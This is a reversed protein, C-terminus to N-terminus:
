AGWRLRWIAAAALLAILVLTGITGTAPIPNGLLAAEVVIDASAPEGSPIGGLSILSTTNTYTGAPADSPVQVDVTFTCSGGPPLNGGTLTLFSTGTLASGTGCVEAMPTSVAVLGPVVADLDDTFAIDVIGASADLNEITFQLTGTQGAPIPAGFVKTFSFLSVSLDDTAPDGSVPFGSMTGTVTSTTNTYSGAPAAAPVQVTVSFTCTAGAALNAGTLTLVGAGSIQSGAGCVDNAPLGVAALGALAAGLDDTFTIGTVGSTTSLNAVTFELTASDGPAVPDDTFQKSFALPMSDVVLVDVAPDSVGFSSSLASTTNIYSGDAAGAPVLVPVDIICSTGSLVSGGVYILNTTGSLAGGCTDASAPGTAALGSLTASLNDTFLTITADLTPHANDLTFRLTVTQGPLAPDDIFEKNLTLGSIMLNDSAGNETTTVGLVTATVNSTTNPYSGPAAAAPVDLTVSFTCSAGPALAGGTFSLSSTGDIQSGTGCIDSMPLGTAALGSLAADLNDTFAVATADGPAFESHTLTFELTVTGGPDVPDDTFEKLLRPAAVTQLVDSAPPGIVAAGGVTGSITSTTNVYNGSPFGVPISVTVDFTCSDGPSGSAALNGGTLQLGQRDFGLSVLTMSSGIGCPTAPLTASVPFPLFATLDDTFEIDTIGDTLSTNTITFQLTVDQGAGVPDDTFEKTFGPAPAVWLIDSATNGTVPSGGITATIAGTTNTYIGPTAGAPVTLSTSITCSGEIAVSGGSLGITTTGVGSVTGGCDNSLLSDFTLGALATTLDDTFAVGTAPDFRDFNDIRFDLTVTGGPPVPDDTFSKQIAVPTITVDLTASAKGAPVFDALLDGSTNGLLGAGSTVVDVVVTCTADAAVAPFTATGNADLIVVGTGPVATLIPPVTATGCTTSANAPDAITMGTPLLDTFQLWAVGSGNAANDVTLTLTSRGGLPVTGPAFSKSFGPLTTVVNLDASATGSNGASSTLDGSVNMHTAVTSSTVDVVITCLAGPGVTGGTFTITGGGAPATLTGGCLSLANAPDAIVVGAPLVDTFALDTVGSGSETNDVTFQLTATSGPGITSPTFAKGFTPLPAQGQAPNAFGFISITVAGALILRNKFSPTTMMM